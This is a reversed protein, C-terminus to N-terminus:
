ERNELKCVSDHQCHKGTLLQRTEVGWTRRTEAWDRRCWAARVKGLRVGNVRSEENGHGSGVGACDSYTALMVRRDGASGSVTGDGGGSEALTGRRWMEGRRRSAAIDAAGLRALFSHGDNERGLCVSGVGGMNSVGSVGLRERGIEGGGGGGGDVSSSHQDHSSCASLPATGTM